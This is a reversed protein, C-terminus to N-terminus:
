KSPMPATSCRPSCQWETSTFAFPLTRRGGRGTKSMATQSTLVDVEERRLQFMFDEPFRNRKVAENLRFTAVRYLDALDKDLMVKHGRILYIKREILEIPVPLNSTRLIPKNPV